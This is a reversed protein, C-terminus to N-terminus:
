RKVITPPISVRIGKLQLSAIVHDITLLLDTSDMSVIPYHCLPFRFGDHGTFVFQCVENAMKVEDTDAQNFAREAEEIVGEREPLGVWKLKGDRNSLM